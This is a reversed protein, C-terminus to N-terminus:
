PLLRRAIFTTTTDRRTYVNGSEYPLASDWEVVAKVQTTNPNPGAAFLLQVDYPKGDMVVTSDLPAAANVWVLLSDYPWERVGDLRAQAVATAKRRYEEHDIHKRGQVYFQTLWFMVIILLVAAILVELITLGRENRVPATLSRLPRM